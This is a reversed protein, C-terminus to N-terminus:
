ARRPTSSSEGVVFDFTIQLSRYFSAFDELSPAAWSRSGSPPCTGPPDGSELAVFRLDAAAGFAQMPTASTAQPSEIALFCSVSWTHTPIPLDAVAAGDAVPRTGPGPTLPLDRAVARQSERRVPLPTSAAIARSSSDSGASITSTTSASSWVGPKRSFTLLPGRRHDDFSYPRRSPKPSTPLRTDVVITRSRAPLGATPPGPPRSPGPPACSGTTGCRSM